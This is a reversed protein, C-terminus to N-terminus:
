CMVECVHSLVSRMSHSLIATPHLIFPYWSTPWQAHWVEHPSFHIRTAVTQYPSPSSPGCYHIRLRWHAQLSPKPHAWWLSILQNHHHTHWNGRLPDWCMHACTLADSLLQFSASRTFDQQVLMLFSRALNGVMVGSSLLPPLCASEILESFVRASLALELSLSFALRLVSLLWPLSRVTVRAEVHANM